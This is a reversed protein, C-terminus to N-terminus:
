SGSKLKNLYKRAKETNGLADHVEALAGYILGSVESPGLLLGEGAELVQLAKEAQQQKLLSMGNAYYFYPQLPYSELAEASVNELERWQGRELYERMVSEYHAVSGEEAVPLAKPDAVRDKEEQVVARGRNLLSYLQKVEGTEPLGSLQEEARDWNGQKLYWKALNLRFVPMEEPLVGRYVDPTKSQEELIQMFTELVWYEGPNAKLAELAYQEAQGYQKDLYLVRALEHDLVTNLPDLEKAELFLAAARDYNEIGKQKIAEFFVEQFRDTYSDTFLEASGSEQGTAMVPGLCLVLYWYKRLTGRMCCKM